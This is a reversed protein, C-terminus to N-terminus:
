KARPPNAYKRLSKLVMDLSWLRITGSHNKDTSKAAGDTRLTRDSITRRVLRARPRHGTAKFEYKFDKWDDTVEATEELGINHWDEQDIAAQVPVSRAASAKAKFSLLYEKGDALDLNTQIAQIHWDTGDTEKIEISIADGDPTMEAKAADHLESRWSSTQNTPKLLNKADPAAAVLPLLFISLPVVFSRRSM